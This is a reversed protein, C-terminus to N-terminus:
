SNATVVLSVLSVLGFVAWLNPMGGSMSLLEVRGRNSGGGQERALTPEFGQRAGPIYPTWSAGRPPSRDGRREAQTFLRVVGEQLSEGTRQRGPGHQQHPVVPVVHGFPAPRQRQRQESGTRLYFDRAV